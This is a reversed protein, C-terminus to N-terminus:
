MVYINHRLSNKCCDRKTKRLVASHNETM